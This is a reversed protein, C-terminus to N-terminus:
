LIKAYELIRQNRNHIFDITRAKYNKYESLSKPLPITAFNDFDSFFNVEAYNKSVLDQLLFFDVFGKFNEFLKFYDAYNNLTSFLPSDRGKYFLRICELTMDMRDAIKTNFGRATNITKNDISNSIWIMMGGISYGIHIFEEIERKPINRIIHEMRKWRSFSSIVSDSSLYFEGLHSKHHLYAGKTVSDLNFLDGSPLAKSWLFQHYNKLTPSFSDPDKGGADSRFDFNIDIIEIRTM